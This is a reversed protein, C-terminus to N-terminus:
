ADGSEGSSLLALVVAAQRDYTQGCCHDICSESLWQHVEVDDHLAKAIQERDPMLYPRAAVLAARMSEEVAERGYQGESYYADMAEALAEDPIEVPRTM